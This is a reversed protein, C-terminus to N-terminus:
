VGLIGTIAARTSIELQLGGPLRLRPRSESRSREDSSRSHLTNQYGQRWSVGDASKWILDKSWFRSKTSGVVYATENLVAFAGNPADDSRKQWTGGGSSCWVDYVSSSWGPSDPYSCM